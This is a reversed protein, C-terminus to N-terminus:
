WVKDAADLKWRRLEKMMEERGLAGDTLNLPEHHTPHHLLHSATVYVEGATDSEASDVADDATWPRAAHTSCSPMPQRFSPLNAAICVSWPTCVHTCLMSVAQTFITHVWLSLPVPGCLCLCRKLLTNPTPRYCIAPMRAGGDEIMQDDSFFPDWDGPDGERSQLRSVPHSGPNLWSGSATGFLLAEAM